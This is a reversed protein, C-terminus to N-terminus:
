AKKRGVLRRGGAPEGPVLGRLAREGEDDHEVLKGAVHEAAARAGERGIRERSLNRPARDRAAEVLAERHRLASEEIQRQLMGFLNGVLLPADREVARAAIGIRDFPGLQMRVNDAPEAAERVAVLQEAADRRRFLLGEEVAASERTLEDAGPR